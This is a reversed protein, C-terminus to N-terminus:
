AGDGVRPSSLGAESERVVDWYAACSHRASWGWHSAYFRSVAKYGKKGHSLGAGAGQSMTPMPRSSRVIWGAAELANLADDADSPGVFYKGYAANCLADVLTSGHLADTRWLRVLWARLGAREYGVPLKTTNM